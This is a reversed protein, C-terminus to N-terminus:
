KSHKRSAILVLLHFLQGFAEDYDGDLILRYLRLIIPLTRHSLEPNERIFEGLKHFLKEIRKSINSPVKHLAGICEDIAKKIKEM